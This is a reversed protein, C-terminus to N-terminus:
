CSTGKAQQTQRRDIDQNIDSLQKRQQVVNETLAQLQLQLKLDAPNSSKM